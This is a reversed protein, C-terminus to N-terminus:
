IQTHQPPPAVIAGSRGANENDSEARDAEVSQAGKPLRFLDNLVISEGREERLLREQKKAEWYALNTAINDKIQVRSCAFWFNLVDVFSM